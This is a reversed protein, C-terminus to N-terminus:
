GWLNGHPEKPEIKLLTDIELIGGTSTRIACNKKSSRTATSCLIEARSHGYPYHVMNNNVKIMEGGVTTFERREFNSESEQTSLICNEVIHHMLIHRISEPDKKLETLESSDLKSFANDNPAFFTFKHPKQFSKSIEEIIGPVKQLLLKLITFKGNEGIEQFLNKNSQGDICDISDPNTPPHTNTKSEIKLLNDIKIFGGTTTRKACNYYENNTHCIVMANSEGYPYRVMEPKDMKWTIEIMEGGVTTFKHQAFSSETYSICGPVIHHMLIHRISEPDKLLETYETEPIKNLADDTPAFFTYHKRLNSIETIIGPVKDILEALKGLDNSSKIGDYINGNATEDVCSRLGPPGAPGTTTNNTGPTKTPRPTTGPKKTPRPTTAGDGGNKCTFVTDPMYEKKVKTCEKECLKKDEENNWHHGPRKMCSKYCTNNLMRWDELCYKKPRNPNKPMKETLILRGLCGPSPHKARSAMYKSEPNECNISCVEQDETSHEQCYLDCTCHRMM